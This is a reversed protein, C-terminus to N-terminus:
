AQIVRNSSYLQHKVLSELIPQIFKQITLTLACKHQHTKVEAYKKQYFTAFEQYHNKVHSSAELLYYRLHTNEAKSIPTDDARYNGSQNERWILSTYKAM